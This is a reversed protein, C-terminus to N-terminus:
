IPSLHMRVNMLYFITTKLIVLVVLKHATWNLIGVWFTPSVATQGNRYICCRSHGIRCERHKSRPHLQFSLQLGLEEENFSRSLPNQGMKSEMAVLRLTAGFLTSAKGLYHAALRETWSNWKNWQPLKKHETYQIKKLTNQEFTCYYFYCSRIQRLYTKTIQLTWWLEVWPKM